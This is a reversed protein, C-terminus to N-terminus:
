EKILLKSHSHHENLSNASSSVNKVESPQIVELQFSGNKSTKKLLELTHNYNKGILDINDIKLLLDNEMLGAVDSASNKEIQVIQHPGTEKKSLTFGLSKHNSSLKFFVIRSDLSHIKSHVNKILSVSTEDQDFNNINGKLKSYGTVDKIVLLEVQLPNKSIRKILDATKMGSVDENNIELIIDGNKLGAITAPSNKEINEVM